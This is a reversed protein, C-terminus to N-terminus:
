IHKCLKYTMYNNFGRYFSIRINLNVPKPILVKVGCGYVQLHTKLGVRAARGLRVVVFLPCSAHAWRLREYCRQKKLRRHRSKRDNRFLNWWTNATEKALLSGFNGFYHVLTALLSGLNGLYTSVQKCKSLAPMKKIFIKLYYFKTFIYFTVPFKYLHSFFTHRKM